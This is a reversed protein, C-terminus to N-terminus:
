VDEDDGIDDGDTELDNDEGGEVEKDDNDENM